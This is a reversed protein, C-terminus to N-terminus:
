MADGKFTLVVFVAKISGVKSDEDSYDETNRNRVESEDWNEFLSM